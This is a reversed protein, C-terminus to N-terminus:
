RVQDRRTALQGRASRVLAADENALGVWVFGECFQQFSFVLPVIALPLASRQRRLAVTVCYVGAPLLAAGAAFSAQASFCM